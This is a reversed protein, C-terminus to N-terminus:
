KDLRKLMFELEAKDPLTESQATKDFVMTRNEKANYRYWLPLGTGNPNGSTIFNVWYTSMMKALENDVPQWPRNLFKLNDMVYAVEGTHFAGYKVYDATAPLKHDFNYLYVPAKSKVSHLGAWKYASIAFTMDRSIKIQSQKAEADTAAPYLKLFTDAEAGYQEKAQKIFDEKNKFSGILADDANWGTMLAVDNEKNEAFIQPVPEPLIYGDTIPFYKGAFKMLEAAPMARLEKLSAAHVSEALKVGQHEAEALSITPRLASVLQSGSEAIARNFLGKALPSAVLCNVSMAGASQGAVTVNDPDGGFAAINKKVWKLAAIQDMLAYNGSAKNPSEKTLAPHVLYGFAGVRYPISVFIIGKNALSEGDYIPVATGGSVFGGGYIWVFVPKKAGQNAKTWVNLYLCDESIPKEPILFEPTYVMFAVPKNQMPSPGFADCKKVGQWPKVPQPAKWRLDGVPPAAFPIGKFAVVESATSRVGSITGSAIQVTDATRVTKKQANFSYFLISSSALISCVVTVSLKKM